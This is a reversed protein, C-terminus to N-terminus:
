RLNKFILFWPFDPVFKIIESKQTTKTWEFSLYNWFRGSHWIKVVRNWSQRITKAGCNSIKKRNPTRLLHTGPQVCVVSTVLKAFRLGLINTKVALVWLRCLQPKGDPKCCVAGIVRKKKSQRFDGRPSGNATFFGTGIKLERNKASTLNCIHLLMGQPFIRPNQQSIHSVEKLCFCLKGMSYFEYCFMKPKEVKRSEGWKKTAPPFYSESKGCKPRAATRSKKPRKWLTRLAFWISVM